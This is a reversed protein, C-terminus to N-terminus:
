RAALPRNPRRAMTNADATAYIARNARVKFPRTPRVLDGRSSEDEDRKQLIPVVIPQFDLNGFMEDSEAEEQALTAANECMGALMDPAVTPVLLEGKRAGLEVVDRTVWTGPALERRAANIGVFISDTVDVLAVVYGTASVQEIRGLQIDIIIGADALEREAQHVEARWHQLAESAHESLASVFDALQWAPRTRLVSRIVESIAAFSDTNYVRESAALLHGLLREDQSTPKPALLGAAVFEPFIITQKGFAKVHEGRPLVGREVLRQRQRGYGVVSDLEHQTFFGLSTTM